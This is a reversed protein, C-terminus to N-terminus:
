NSIQRTMKHDVVGAYFAGADGVNSNRFKQVAFGVVPLGTFSVGNDSSLVRADGNNNQGLALRAWGNNFEVDYGYQVRESPALASVYDSNPGMFSIVNAESCLSFGTVEVGEPVPSPSFDVGGPTPEVGPVQEERDWQQFQVEECAGAGDDGAQWINLFPANAPATVNVYDHKTPMTVVWDTGATLLPETIYDNSITDHMFVASVADLSESFVANVVQNGDIIDAVPNGSGLNPSTDGPRAHLVATAFNDLAVANYTANTGEEVQVITAYGYLGGSNPAIKAAATLADPNSGTPGWEGISDQPDDSTAPSMAWADIVVSCDAPMGDAGHTIAAEPNFDDGGTVVLDDDLVGMEIVEIYGERTRDVTEPGGDANMNNSNFDTFLLNRLEVGGDPIAPVTCSSDSSMLVAGDTEDSATVVGSWHDYPSLYLNFDIVEWSNMAEMLRVKVAKAEGTTNVITFNTDQEGEVTYYPYILVEGLGDSNIHVAQATGAAGALGALMALPLLKKKM